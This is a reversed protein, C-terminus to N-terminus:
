RPRGSAPVLSPAGRPSSDVDAGVVRVCGRGGSRGCGRRPRRRRSCIWNRGGPRMRSCRTLSRCGSKLGHDREAREAELRERAAAYIRRVAVRPPRRRRWRRLSVGAKGQLELDCMAVTVADRGDELAVALKRTMSDSPRVQGRELCRVSDESVGAKAALQAQTWGRACRRSWLEYGFSRRLRAREQGTVRGPRERARTSGSDGEPSGAARVRTSRPESM